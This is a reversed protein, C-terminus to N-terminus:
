IRDCWMARGSLSPPSFYNLEAESSEVQGLCKLVCYNACGVRTRPLPRFGKCEASTKQFPSEIARLAGDYRRRLCDPWAITVRGSPWPTRLSQVRPGPFGSDLRDRLLMDISDQRQDGLGNPGHDLNLLEHTASPPLGWSTTPIRATSISLVLWTHSFLGPSICSAADCRHRRDRDPFPPTGPDPLVFSGPPRGSHLALVDM